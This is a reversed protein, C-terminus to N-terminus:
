YVVTLQGRLLVESDSLGLIGTTNPDLSGPIPTFFDVTDSQNFSVVVDATFKAAHSEPVLYFNVGGTLFHYTDETTGALTAVDSDFFVSDWRAFLEAQQTVFLGGQVVVGHNVLDISTPTTTTLDLHQGVYAIFVNWGDGQVMADATWETVKADDLTGFLGSAFAAPNTSGASQYHAGAGVRVGYNSGRWSTFDEFQDWTGAFLWDLRATLGIDSEGNANFANNATGLNGPYTGGDSVAAFARFADGTWMGAVGQTYGTDFLEHTVSSEVALRHEPAVARETLLPNSWQGIRLVFGDSISWDAYGELLNVGPNRGNLEANGFDFVIRGSMTDTIAGALRVQARPISFGVTTDSDGLPSAALDNRFSAAYRVQTLVSVGLGASQDAGLFSAREDADARMQSAYARDLDLGSQASAIGALSAITITAAAARM